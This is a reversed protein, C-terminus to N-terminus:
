RVCSFLNELCDQTLRSTLLFPQNALIDDAMNIVFSTSMLIGTQVPKWHGRDGIDLKAIMDMFSCLFNIAADYADKKRRSLSMVPHRSSMLDYWHNCADVFWATTMYGVPIGEKELLFRLAVSVSCSFLNMALGINMKEFDSPQLVSVTLKPALKLTKHQQFTLLDRIHSIDVVASPLDNM